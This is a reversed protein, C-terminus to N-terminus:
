ALIRQGGKGTADDPAAKLKQLEEELLKWESRKKVTELDIIIMVKDDAVLLTISTSTVRM